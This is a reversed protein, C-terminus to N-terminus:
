RIYAVVNDDTRNIVVNEPRMQTYEIPYLANPLIAFDKFQMQDFILDVQTHSISLKIPQSIEKIYSLTEMETENLEALREPSPLWSYDDLMEEIEKEPIGLQGAAESFTIDGDCLSHLVDREKKNM